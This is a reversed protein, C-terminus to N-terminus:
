RVGRHHHIANHTHKKNTKKSVCNNAELITFASTILGNFFVNLSSPAESADEKGEKM